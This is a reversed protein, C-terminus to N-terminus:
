CCTTAQSSSRFLEKARQQDLCRSLYIPFYISILALCVTFVFKMNFTWYWLSYIYIIHLCDRMIITNILHYKIFYHFSSFQKWKNISLIINPTSGFVLIVIKNKTKLHVPRASKSTMIPQDCFDFSNGPPKNYCRLGDIVYLKHHQLVYRATFERITVHHQLRITIDNFNTRKTSV